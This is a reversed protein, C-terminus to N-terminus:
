VHTKMLDIKASQLHIAPVMWKGCSCRSGKWSYGGVKAECKPCAFKGELEQKNLETEMWSMPEGMFYHSCTKAADISSIIRRSNPVTRIFQAQRSESDPIEHSEVDSNKALVTRCRKCRLNYSAGNQSSSDHSVVESAKDQSAEDCNSEQDHKKMKWYGSQLLSAGSPDLALSNEVFFERYLPSSMDVKCGMDAFLQLQKVFGANPEASASKRKVAYLAQKYTLNHKYMLFAIIVAVSRSEGQACHVLVAGTSSKSEESKEQKGDLANEIFAIANNLHALLDETPEDTIDIQLHSYEQLIYDPISGSVVSVVHTIGYESNLNIGDKIPEFSSLYINGLIRTAMQHELLILHADGDQM